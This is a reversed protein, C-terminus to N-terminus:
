IMFFSSNKEIQRLSCPSAFIEPITLPQNLIEYTTTVGSELALTVGLTKVINPRKKPTSKYAFASVNQAGAKNTRDNIQSPM